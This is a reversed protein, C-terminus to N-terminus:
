VFAEPLGSAASRTMANLLRVGFLIQEANQLPAGNVGRIADRFAGWAYWGAFGGPETRVPPVTVGRKQLDLVAVDAKMSGGSKREIRRRINGREFNLTVSDPYPAGDDICFSAFINALAGNTYEISLQANDATRRETRVRTQMVHVRGPTGLLAAFDNLFYIGLRTIPAAPCRAPDDYWSGDSQEKYSCWTEARMGVPRGLDHAEVWEKIQVIDQAPLAAPSNLHIALGRRAAEDLVAQAAALDFEFPKTTMVHRGANLVEQILRARGVPPTFIGVAEISEDRLVSEIDAYFPVGFDAAAKMGKEVNLDCIGALKVYQNEGALDRAIGYGFNVGVIAMRVQDSGHNM